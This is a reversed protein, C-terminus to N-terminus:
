IAQMRKLRLYRNVSAVAIEEPEVAVLEQLIDSM